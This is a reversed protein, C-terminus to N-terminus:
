LRKDPKRRWAFLIAGVLMMGAGIVVWESKGFMVRSPLLSLGQLTFVAGAIILLAAIINKLNV